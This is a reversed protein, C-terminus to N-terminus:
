KKDTDKDNDPPIQMPNMGCMGGSSQNTGMFIQFIMTINSSIATLQGSIDKLTDQNQLLMERMEKQDREMAGITQNTHANHNSILLSINGDIENLQKELEYVNTKLEGLLNDVKPTMEEFLKNDRKITSNLMRWMIILMIAAIVALVGAEVILKVTSSIGPIADSALATPSSAALMHANAIHQTLSLFHM